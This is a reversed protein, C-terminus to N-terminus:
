TKGSGTKAAGLVDKGNLLLPISKAQIDTMESFNSESLGQLTQTSLPYDTFDLSTLLSLDTTTCLEVLSAVQANDIAQLQKHQKKGITRGTKVM